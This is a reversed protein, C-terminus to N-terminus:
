KGGTLREILDIYNKPKIKEEDLEKIVKTCNKDCKENGPNGNHGRVWQLTFSNCKEKLENYIYDILQWERLNKVPKNSATKWNKNKWNPLWEELGKILYQSDSYFIINVDELNEKKNFYMMPIIFGLIEMQNNTVNDFGDSVIIPKPMSEKNDSYIVSTFSGYKIPLKKTVHSRAGGDSYIQINEM